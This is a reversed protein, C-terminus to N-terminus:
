PMRKEFCNLCDLNSCLMAVAGCSCPVLEVDGPRTAVEEKQKADLSQHRPRVQDRSLAQSRYGEKEIPQAQAVGELARAEAERATRDERRQAMDAAVRKAFREATSGTSSVKGGGRGLRVRVGRGFGTAARRRRPKLSDMMTALKFFVSCTFVVIVALIVMQGLSLNAISLLEPFGIVGVLIGAVVFVFLVVRLPTLPQSIRWILSVSAACSTLLCM